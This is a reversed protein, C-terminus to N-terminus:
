PRSAQAGSKSTPRRARGGVRRAVDRLGGVGRGGGEHLARELQAAEGGHAAVLREARDDCPGSPDDALAHAGDDGRRIGRGV